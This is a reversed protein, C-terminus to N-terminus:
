IGEYLLDFDKLTQEDLGTVVGEWCPAMLTGSPGHDLGALHGLEHMATHLTREYDLGPKLQIHTDRQYTKGWIVRGKDTPVVADFSARQQAEVPAILASWAVRPRAATWVEIAEAIAGQQEADFDSDIVLATDLNEPCPYGMSYAVESCTSRECALSLLSLGFLVPLYRTM